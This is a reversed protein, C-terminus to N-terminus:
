WGKTFTYTLGFSFVVPYDVKLDGYNYSCLAHLRLNEIPYYHLAAGVHGMNVNSADYHELGAHVLAELKDCAAYNLSVSTTEGAAFINEDDGVKSQADVTCTFADAFSGRVGCSIVGIYNADGQGMLNYAARCGWSGTDIVLRMGGNYIGSTFPHEGYPSTSIGAELSCVDMVQWALSAGWQYCNMSNWISSAFPIHVDYDYEDFEYTGWLLPAKGFTLGVDGSTYTLYAWDLWNADDTRFTNQYLLGPESSLWHNSISYSFHESFNGEFLTYLSSNGLPDANLYEGRAIVSFEAVQGLDDAEQSHALFCLLLTAATVLTKKMEWYWLFLNPGVEKKRNCLYYKKSYFFSSPWM